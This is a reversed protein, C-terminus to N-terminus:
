SLSYGHTCMLSCPQGESSLLSGSVRGSCRSGHTGRSNVCRNPNHGISSCAFWKFLKAALNTPMRYLPLSPWHYINLLKEPSELLSELTRLGAASERTAHPLRLLAPLHPKGNESHVKCNRYQQGLLFTDLHLPGLCNQGSCCKALKICSLLKVLGEM